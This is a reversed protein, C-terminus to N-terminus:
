RSTVVYVVLMYPLKLSQLVCHSKLLATNQYDLYCTSRQLLIAGKSTTGDNTAIVYFCAATADNVIFHSFPWTPEVPGIACTWFGRFAHKMRSADCRLSKSRRTVKDQPM